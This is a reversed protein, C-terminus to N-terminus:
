ARQLELDETSPAPTAPAPDGWHRELLLLGVIAPVYPLLSFIGFPGGEHVANGWSQGGIEAAIVILLLRLMNGLIALPLASAIVLVRKWWKRFSLLSLVTSLAFIAMLSRIGSCAAAVEYGYQNSPDRLMTGEVLVDIALVYHCIWAVLHTVLVRLRFTIATADIPFLFALLFFPFFSTRLWALGWALGTLGYLGVILGIISLRAQQVRYGLVHLVLGLGVLVIGPWWTRLQQELLERRKLWFLVLVAFPVCLGYIGESDLVHRGGGTFAAYIWALLSPTRVYGLTSNGLYHFLALWAAFLILFFAKNPLRQWCALFELRFEELIGNGSQKQVHASIRDKSIL